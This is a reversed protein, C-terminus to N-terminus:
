LEKARLADQHSLLHRLTYYFSNLCMFIQLHGSNADLFSMLECGVISDVLQDIRPLPFDDTPSAKNLDTFDVFMRWKCNSKKVLVLNALWELHDIERIVGTKLLKQVKGKAAEQRATSM